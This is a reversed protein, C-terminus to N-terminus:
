FVSSKAFLEVMASGPTCSFGSLFCALTHRTHLYMAFNSRDWMQAPLALGKWEWLTDLDVQQKAKSHAGADTSSCATPVPSHHHVAVFDWVWTWVDDHVLVRGHQVVDLELRHAVEQEVVQALWPCHSAHEDHLADVFDSTLGEAAEAQRKPV